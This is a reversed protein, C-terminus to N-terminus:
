YVTSGPQCSGLAKLETCTGGPMGGGDGSSCTKRLPCGIRPRSLTCDEKLPSRNSTAFAPRVGGAVRCATRGPSM